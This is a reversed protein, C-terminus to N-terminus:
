ELFSEVRDYTELSVIIAWHYTLIDQVSDTYLHMETVKQKVSLDVKSGQIYAQTLQPYKIPKKTARELITGM